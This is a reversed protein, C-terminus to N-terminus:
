KSLKGILLRVGLVLLVVIGILSLANKCYLMVKEWFTPKPPEPCPPCNCRLVAKIKKQYPISDGKYNASLKIKNGKRVYTASVKGNQVTISDVGASDCPAATFITDAKQGPVEITDFIVTEFIVSDQKCFKKIAQNKTYCSCLLCYIIATAIAIITKM